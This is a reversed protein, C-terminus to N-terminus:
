TLVEARRTSFLFWCWQVVVLFVLGELRRSTIDLLHRLLTAKGSDLIRHICHHTHARRVSFFYDTEANPSIPCLM